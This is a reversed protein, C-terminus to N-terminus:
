DNTAGLGLAQRIEHLVPLATSTYDIQTFYSILNAIHAQERIGVLEDTTRNQADVLALTAHVQAIQAQLFADGENGGWDQNADARAAYQKAEQAHNMTDGAPELDQIDNESLVTGKGSTDLNFEASHVVGAFEGGTYGGKAFTAVPTTVIEVVQWGKCYYYYYYYYYFDTIYSRIYGDGVSLVTVTAEDGNARVLRVRDGERVKM